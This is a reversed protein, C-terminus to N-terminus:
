KLCKKEQILIYFLQKDLKYFQNHKVFILIIIKKSELYLTTSIM